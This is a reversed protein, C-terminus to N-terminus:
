SKSDTADSFGGKEGNIMQIFHEVSDKLRSPAIGKIHKATEANLNPVKALIALEENTFVMYAPISRNLALERRVKKFTEYRQKEEDSMGESFDKKEKRYAVPSEATPEGDMYEVLLAWYGGNDPCFHRETQLIRHSRLFKNLEEEIRESDFVPLTFVKIQMSTKKDFRHHDRKPSRKKTARESVM